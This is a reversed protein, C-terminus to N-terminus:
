HRCEQREGDDADDDSADVRQSGGAEDDRVDGRADEVEGVPRDAHDGGEGIPLEGDVRAPGGDEGQREDQEDERGEEAHQDVDQDHAVQM